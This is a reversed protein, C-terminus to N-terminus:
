RLSEICGRSDYYFQILVPACSIQIICENRRHMKVDIVYKNKEMRM